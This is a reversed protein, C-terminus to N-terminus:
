SQENIFEKVTQKAFNDAVKENEELDDPNPLKGYKQLFHGYEHALKMITYNEEYFKPAPNGECDFIGEIPKETTLLILDAEEIFASQETKGNESVCICDQCNFVSLICDEDTTYNKNLYDIFRLTKEDLIKIM